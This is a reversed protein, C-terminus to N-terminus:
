SFATDSEKGGDICIVSQNRFCFDKIAEKRGQQLGAELGLNLFFIGVLVIIIIIIGVAIMSYLNEAKMIRGIKICISLLVLM